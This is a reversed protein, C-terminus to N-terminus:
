FDIKAFTLYNRYQCPMVISRASIQKGYRPMFEFGKDLNRLTPHRTIKGEADISHDNLLLTRREYLNFLFHLEGGTNMIQHSILVDSQDDFQTKPIINTWELSDNKGFSMILINEAHFRTAPMAGWRNFPSGWPSFYPSYYYNLPSAWPNNYSMYDWRNFSSGRSTNYMSEGILIYGGDKKVVINKIFYDNLAIRVNGDQGKAQKRLEDDFVLVNDRFLKSNGHDWVLTYLGEINGRRQKYYFATFIYRKNTNDVKIKVEDLVRSGTKLDFMSFRPSNVPKTVLNLNTIYESGGRKLYKGFVLGGENDLLFDTFFDNREEMPLDMQDRKILKLDADLLFTTFVFNKPNRSNIKFVMVKQKDDSFITTYIKNNASWGIRTTDLEIPDTLRKANADLKVAMCYVVSKRQFQYIMWTFDTYPVFDVNIWREDNSGLRVRNILKMENDYVSIDNNNRNNKFVQINGGVRGIIEFITRKNDEKEPDAYSIKQAFVDTGATTIIFFLLFIRMAKTTWQIM